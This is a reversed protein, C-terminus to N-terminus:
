YSIKKKVDYVGDESLSLSNYCIWLYHQLMKNLFLCSFFQYFNVVKILEKDYPM